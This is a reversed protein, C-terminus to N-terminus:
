ASFASAFGALDIGEGDDEHYLKYLEYALCFSDITDDHESGGGFAYCEDILINLDNVRKGEKDKYLFVQLNEWKASFVSIRTEKNKSLKMPKIPLSTLRMLESAMAQQYATSDIGIRVTMHWKKYYKKIAEQQENFTLKDAYIDLLYVNKFDDIGIVSICFRDATKSKSIALDVGMFVKVERHEYEFYENNNKDIKLIPVKVCVIDDEVIYHHFYQFYEAKFYLSNSKSVKAMYQMNWANIDMNAREKLLYKTSKVAPCVSKEVGNIMMLSPVKLIKFKAKTPNELYRENLTNYYDSPHYHTGIIHIEGAGCEDYEILTPYVTNEIFRMFRERKHVTECNDFIVSDDLLILNFHKSIVNSSASMSACNVTGEKFPQKRKLSFKTTQWTDGRINGFLEWCIAEDEFYQKLERVFDESQTFTATIICIRIDPNRLIKTMVYSTSCVSSKGLGRGSLLLTYPNDNQFKMLKRHYKTVKFRFIYVTVVWWATLFDSELILAKLVDATLPNEGNCDYYLKNNM